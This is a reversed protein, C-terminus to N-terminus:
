VKDSCRRNNKYFGTYVRGDPFTQTGQGNSMDEEWEGEYRYGSPRTFVGYGSKCDDV